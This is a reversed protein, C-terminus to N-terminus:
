SHDGLIGPNLIAMPDFARKVGRSLHDRAIRSPFLAWSAPPLREPICTGDFDSMAALVPAIEVASTSPIICRIIGRGVSAHLYTGRSAAVAQRTFAWVAATHSPARSLRVVAADVPECERLANWTPAPTAAIDGFTGLLERQARVSEANGGLRALLVARDGVGLRTALTPCILELALPALAACRLRALLADLEAVNESVQLAWSEEVEPLARLRVTAETVVGLTGWSGTLLRTLDFGAVNKVVRGGARIIRADGTVAEIGLVTDRPTGFAHALPGASATAITAGLTSTGPGFPDLALWQQEAATV